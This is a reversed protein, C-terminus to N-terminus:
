SPTGGFPRFRSRVKAEGFESRDEAPEHKRLFVRKWKRDSNSNPVGEIAIGALNSKVILKFLHIM